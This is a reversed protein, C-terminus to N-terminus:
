VFQSFPRPFPLNRISEHDHHPFVMERTRRTFQGARDPETVEVLEYQFTELERPLPCQPVRTGNGAGVEPKVPGHRHVMGCVPCRFYLSGTDEPIDVLDFIRACAVKIVHREHDVGLVEASQFTTKGLPPLWNHGGDRDPTNKWNGECLKKYARDVYRGDADFKHAVTNLDAATADPFATKLVLRVNVHKCEFVEPPASHGSQNLPSEGSRNLPITFSQPSPGVFVHKALFWRRMVHKTPAPGPFVHSVPLWSVIEVKDPPSTPTRKALQSWNGYGHQKAVLDLAHSHQLGQQKALQKAQKKLRAIEQDSFKSFTM